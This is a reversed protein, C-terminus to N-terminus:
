SITTTASADISSATSSSSRSIAPSRRRITGKSRGNLKESFILAPTTRLPPSCRSSSLSSMSTMVGSQSSRITM